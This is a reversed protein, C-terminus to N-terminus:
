KPPVAFGFDLAVLGVDILDIIGNMDMDYATLTGDTYVSGIHGAVLTIDKGDVKGDGNVDTIVSRYVIGFLINTIPAGTVQVTYNVQYANTLTQGRDVLVAAPSWLYQTASTNLYNLNALSVNVEAGSVWIRWRDSPNTINLITPITYTGVANFTFNVFLCYELKSEVTLNVSFYYPNALLSPGALTINAYNQALFGGGSSVSQNSAASSTPGVFINVPSYTVDDSGTRAVVLLPTSM